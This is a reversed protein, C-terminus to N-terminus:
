PKPPKMLSRIPQWPDKEEPKELVGSPGFNRMLNNPEPYCYRHLAAYM